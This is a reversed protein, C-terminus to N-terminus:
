SWEQDFQPAYTEIILYIFQTTSQREQAGFKYCIENTILNKCIFIYDKDMEHTRCKTRDSISIAAQTARATTFATVCKKIYARLCFIFEDSFM